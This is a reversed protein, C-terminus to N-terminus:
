KLLDPDKIEFSWGNSRKNNADQVYLKGKFFKPPVPQEAVILFPSWYMVRFEIKDVFVLGPQWTPGFNKGEISILSAQVGWEDSVNYIKPYSQLENYYKLYKKHGFFSSGTLIFVIIFFLWSFKKPPVSFYNIVFVITLIVIFIATKIDGSLFPFVSFYETLFYEAPIVILIYLFITELISVFTTKLKEWFSLNM